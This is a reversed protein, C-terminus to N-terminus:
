VLRIDVVTLFQYRLKDKRQCDRKRLGAKVLQQDNARDDTCGFVNYEM